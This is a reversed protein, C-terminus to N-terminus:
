SPPPVRVSFASSVFPQLADQGCVHRVPWMSLSKSLGHQFWEAVFWVVHSLSFVTHTHTHTHTHLAHQSISCCWTHTHTHTLTHTHTHTHIHTYLTSPSPVAGRTHSHTHTHTLTHSHTHTHTLTHTHSHTRTSRAPLHFLVMHTRTHTHSHTHFHTHTHTHTYTDVNVAQTHLVNFRLVAVHFPSTLFDDTGGPESTDNHEIRLTTAPSKNIQADPNIASLRPHRPRTPGAPADRGARAHIRGAM